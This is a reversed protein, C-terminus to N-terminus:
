FSALLGNNAGNEAEILLIITQKEKAVLNHLPKM